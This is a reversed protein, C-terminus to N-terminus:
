NYATGLKNIGYKMLLERDSRVQLSFGPGAHFNHPFGPGPHFDFPSSTSIIPIWCKDIKEISIEIGSGRSFEPDPLFEWRSNGRREDCDGCFIVLAIFPKSSFFGGSIGHYVVLNHFLLPYIRRMLPIMVSKFEPLHSNFVTQKTWKWWSVINLNLVPQVGLKEVQEDLM